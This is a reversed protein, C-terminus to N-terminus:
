KISRIQRTPSTVAGSITSNRAQQPVPRPITSMGAGSSISKWRISASVAGTDVAEGQVDASSTRIDEPDANLTDWTATPYENDVNLNIYSISQYNADDIIKIRFYLIDSDPIYTTSDIPIHLVFNKSDTKDVQTPELVINNDVIPTYSVGGNYSVGIYDVYTDDSADGTLTFSGSVYDSTSHSLNEV